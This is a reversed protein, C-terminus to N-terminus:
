NAWTQEPNTSRTRIVTEYPITAPNIVHSIQCYPIGEPSTLADSGQMCNSAQHNCAAAQLAQHLKHEIVNAKAISSALLHITLRTIM